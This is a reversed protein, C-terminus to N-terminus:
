IIINIVYGAFYLNIIAITMEKELTWDANYIQNLSENWLNLEDTTQKVFEIRNM